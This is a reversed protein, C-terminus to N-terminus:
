PETDFGPRAQEGVGGSVLQGAPDQATVTTRQPVETALQERQDTIQHRQLCLEGLVQDARSLQASEVLGPAGVQLLRQGVQGPHRPALTQAVVQAPHEGGCPLALLHGAQHIFVTGGLHIEVGDVETVLDRQRGPQGLGGGLDSHGFAALGRHHQEVFVLVGADRLAAHQRTQEPVSVRHGRYTVRALRDVAPAARRDGVEVAEGPM